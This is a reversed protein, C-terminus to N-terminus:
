QAERRGARLVRGRAARAEEGAADYEAQAEARARSGQVLRSRRLGGPVRRDRDGHRHDATGAGEDDAQRVPPRLPQRPRTRSRSPSRSSSSRAPQSKQQKKPRREAEAAAQKKADVSRTGRAHLQGDFDVCARRTSCSCGSRCRSRSLLPRPQRVPDHGRLREARRGAGRPSAIDLHNTPEDLVLVNPKDLLLQALRVRAREGGSLLGIPKHIDDGRFLMPALM